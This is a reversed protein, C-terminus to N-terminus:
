QDTYCSYKYMYPLDANGSVNAVFTSKSYTLVGCARASSLALCMSDKFISSPSHNLTM